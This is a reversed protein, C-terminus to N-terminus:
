ISDSFELCDSIENPNIEGHPLYKALLVGLKTLTEVYAQSLGQKKLRLTFDQILESWEKADIKDNFFPDALIFARKEKLSVMVLVAARDKTKTLGRKYFELIARELVSYEIDAEHTFLRFLFPSRPTVWYALFFLFALFMGYLSFSQWTTLWFYNGLWNLLPLLGLGFVIFVLFPLSHKIVSEKVIVAKIECSTKTEALQIASSVRRAEDDSIVAKAWDPVIVKGVAVPVEAASAVVVEVLAAM